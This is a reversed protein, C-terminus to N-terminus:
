QRKSPIPTLTELALEDLLKTDAFSYHGDSIIILHDLVKVGIPHCAAVIERTLERDSESPEAAGSPHNHAVILASANTQLARAVITRIPPRVNDVTGQAILADELLRGQRNLYAVRFHEDPLERLRAAFYAAADRTSKLITKERSNPLSARRGLELAALLQARKASGIGKIDEWATLPASMMAQVSGFHKILEHGLEVASKGQVGIRLLIALLEADTLAHSGRSLLRERPREDPSWLAIGSLKQKPM